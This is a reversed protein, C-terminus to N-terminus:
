MCCEAAEDSSKTKTCVSPPQRRAPFYVAAPQVSNLAYRPAAKTGVTGSISFKTTTYRNSVQIGGILGRSQRM